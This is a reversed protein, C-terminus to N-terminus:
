GWHVMSTKPDEKIAKDFCRGSEEHHFAYSWVLGRNFWKQAKDSSTSIKRGFSGLDYIYGDANPTM